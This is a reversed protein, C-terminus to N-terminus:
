NSSQNAAPFPHRPFFPRNAQLAQTTGPLVQCRVNQLLWRNLRMWIPIQQFEQDTLYKDIGRRNSFHAERRAEVPSGQMILSDESALRQAKNSSLQMLESQKVQLKPALLSRVTARCTPLQCCEQCTEFSALLRADGPFTSLMHSTIATSGLPGGQLSAAEVCHTSPPEGQASSPM